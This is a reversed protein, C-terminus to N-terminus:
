STGEARPMLDPLIDPRAPDWAARALTYARVDEAGATWLAEACAALTAGTTCVDDILIPRRGRLSTGDVVFAGKVNERRDRAKLYVQPRTARIRRIAGHVVPLGIQESLAEALLRSQNYGRARERSPHLPVPVLCDGRMADRPWARAMLTGLPQALERQGRYKLHLIAQRLPGEFIVASRIASLPPSSRRCDPCLWSRAQPRGCRTCVPPCLWSVASLCHDCLLSGWRGCGVCRPPFILDLLIRWVSRLKERTHPFAMM